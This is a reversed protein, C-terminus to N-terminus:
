ASWASKLLLAVFMRSRAIDEEGLCLAKSHAHADLAISCGAVAVFALRALVMNPERLRSSTALSTLTHRHGAM